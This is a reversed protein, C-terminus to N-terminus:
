KDTVGLKNDLKKLQERLNEIESSYSEKKKLEEKVSKEKKILDSLGNELKRLYEGLNNLCNDIRVLYGSKTDGLEIYYRGNASLWVFPKEETMNSPLIIDFGRYKIFVTEHKKLTNEVLAGFLRERISKREQKSYDCDATPLYGCDLKCNEICIRQNKIKAPYELLEKELREREQVTKRQLSIYHSLTNATEVRQKLLPNGVALAKVEAYNLVTDDVDSGSRDKLSGSLLESIFRQKTELLQWSYADFSGETIYRFIQVKENTNGQRLIRGERQTMDAPRWPVDLHHVAILREQVNVGLGLKFTSGILVRVKGSNVDSFLANRKKDTDFNHIFAIENESVGMGTLLRKLEDYINFNSKPTSTDCFILQTSKKNGRNIYIEFVNEACRYVKSNYNFQANPEVLRMDLAAKRGDTTIKLLNDTTRDVIGSRVADARESIDSLYDQLEDTKGVLADNYDDFEPMGSKEDAKHFDAVSSLLATLEPLNHFKAFRTALRYSSTDVDIEFETTQEAFMGVWSDFNHLDLMALEGNQLYKQMVFVDTVSNTIPTGTAFVVGRGNNQRQVCCVKDMMDQCKPSGKKNLGLVRQISSEFPVNKFNHVEDVFLTNIGLQDFFVTDELGKAAKYFEKLAENLKKQKRRLVSTTKKQNDTVEHIIDLQRNIEKEYYDSSLPIMEFSSYAIIIGDYDNDRISELISERKNPIFSKPEVCLVNADPYLKKFIEVWQGTLNNPVVFVNKKSIGMRRLEMGAAIMIYTKGSGVDHALLTNPSFLIRAVANKQYHYLTVDSSM